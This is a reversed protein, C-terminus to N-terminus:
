DSCDSKEDYFYNNNYIKNYYECELVKGLNQLSRICDFGQSELYDIASYFSDPTIFKYYFNSESDNNNIAKEAFNEGWKYLKYYIKFKYIQSKYYYELDVKINSTNHIEHSFITDFYINENLNKKNKAEDLTKKWKYLNGWKMYIKKDTYYKSLITDLKITTHKYIEQSDLPEVLKGDTIYLDDFRNFKNKKFKSNVIGMTKISYMIFLLVM